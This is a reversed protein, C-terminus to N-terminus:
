LSVEISVFGALRLAKVFHFISRVDKQFCATIFPRPVGQHRAMGVLELICYQIDTINEVMPPTGQDVPTLWTNRLDQSAVLVLCDGFRHSFLTHGIILWGIGGRGKKEEGKGLETEGEWVGGEKGVDKNVM